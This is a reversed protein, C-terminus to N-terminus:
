SVQFEGGPDQVSAHMCVGHMDMSACVRWVGQCESAYVGCGHMHAHMYMMCAWAHVCLCVCVCGGGWTGAAGRTLLFGGSRVAVLLLHPWLLSSFTM